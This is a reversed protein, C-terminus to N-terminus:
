KLLVISFVWYVVTVVTFRVCSSHSPVSFPKTSLGSPVTSKSSGMVCDDYQDFDIKTIGCIQATKCDEDCQEGGASVSNFLYYRRFSSSGKPKFTQVLSHLSQPSMDPIGLAETAKYEILWDPKNM